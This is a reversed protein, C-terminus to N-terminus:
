RYKYLANSAKSYCLLHHNDCCNMIFWLKYLYLYIVLVVHFLLSSIRLTRAAYRFNKQRVANVSAFKRIIETKDHNRAVDNEISLIALNTLKSQDMKSRLYTKILKLKSFSREASAVTVPITLFLVLLKQFQPFSSMMRNNYMLQLLDSVTHLDAIEDKFERVFSRVETVLDNTFDHHYSKLISAVSSEIDEVKAAKLNYPYLFSFFSSVVNQGEFRVRLETLAVDLTRYFVNVKFFENPESIDNIYRQNSYFYRRSHTFSPTINWSLAIASATDLVSQYNDRLHQLENKTINLLRSAASLDMKPSQLERSTNNFARLVREWFVIFVIFEYSEMKERLGM